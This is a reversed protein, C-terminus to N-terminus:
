AARSAGRREASACPPRRPPRAHRNVGGAPGSWRSPRTRGFTPNVTVGMQSYQIFVPNPALRAPPSPECGLPLTPHTPDDAHETSADGTSRPAMRHQLLGFLREGDFETIGHSRAREPERCRGRRCRHESRQGLRCRSRRGARCREDRDVWRRAAASRAVSSRTVSITAARPRRRCRFGSERVARTVNTTTVRTMRLAVLM